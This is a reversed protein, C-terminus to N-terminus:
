LSLGFGPRTWNECASGPPAGNRPGPERYCISWSPSPECRVFELDALRLLRFRIKETSVATCRQLQPETMTGRVRLLLIIKADIVANLRDHLLHLVGVVM